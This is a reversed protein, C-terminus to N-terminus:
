AFETGGLPDLVFVPRTTELISRWQFRVYSHNFWCVHKISSTNRTSGVHVPTLSMFNFSNTSVNNTSESKSVHATFTSKNNNIKSSSTNKLIIIKMNKSGPNTKLFFISRIENTRKVGLSLSHYTVNNNNDNM